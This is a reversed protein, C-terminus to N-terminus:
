TSDPNQYQEQAAKSSQVCRIAAEPEAIVRLFCPIIENGHVKTWAMGEVLQVAEGRKTVCSFCADESQTSGRNHAHKQQLLLAQYKSYVLYADHM